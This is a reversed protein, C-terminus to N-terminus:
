CNKDVQKIVKCMKNRYERKLAGDKETVKMTEEIQWSNEECIDSIPVSQKPNSWQQLCITQNNQKFGWKRDDHM